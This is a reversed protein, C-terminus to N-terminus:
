REHQTPRGLRRVGGIVVCHVRLREVLLASEGQPMHHTPRVLRDPEASSRVADRGGGGGKRSAALDLRRRMGGSCTKVTRGAADALEFQGLVTRARQRAQPKGMGLLRGLMVLNEMGSRSEDVAAYQGTLGNLQRVQQPQRVV